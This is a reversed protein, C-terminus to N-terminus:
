LMDSISFASIHNWITMFRFLNDQFAETSNEKCANTAILDRTIRDLSDKVAMTTPALSTCGWLGLQERTYEPCCITSHQLKVQAAIKGDDNDIVRKILM